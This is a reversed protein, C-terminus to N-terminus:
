GKDCVDEEEVRELRRDGVRLRRRSFTGIAVSHHLTPSMKQVSAEYITTHSRILTFLILPGLCVGVTQSVADFTHTALQVFQERLVRSMTSNKGGTLLM